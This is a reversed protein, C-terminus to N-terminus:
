DNKLLILRNDKIQTTKQERGEIEPASIGEKFFQTGKFIVAEDWLGADIFQQLTRSGGEVILSQIEREYLYKLIQVPLSENFDLVVHKELERASEQDKATFVVTEVNQDFIHLTESLRLDKDIVLRLPNNGYFDRSTLRPNDVEATTTGVLISQERTRMQHVRQLSYINSIWIPETNKQDKKVDPYIFGDASEAWKLIVYPRKKNHFTFFRRNLDFCEEELVGTTVEVGNKQMHAVGRGYVKSNYDLTGIVVRKIKKEVILNSCPPTRGYHSCPELNVYLTSEPLLAPEKVSRIANVEAHPEGAKQHWGEGIIKGNHVIVSGVLPNPYTRGLGNKALELCRAMYMEDASQM